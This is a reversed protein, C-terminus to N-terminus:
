KPAPKSHRPARGSEAPKCVGYSRWCTVDKVFKAVFHAKAAHWGRVAALAELAKRAAVEASADERWAAHVYYQLLRLEAAVPVLAEARMAEIAEKAQRISAAHAGVWHDMQRGAALVRAIIARQEDSRAGGQECAVCACEFGFGVLTRERREARPKCLVEPSLYSATIEDGEKIKRYAVVLLAKKVSCWYWGANPACSHNIRSAVKFIGFPPNDADESACPIGNTDLLSEIAPRADGSGVCLQLLELWNGPPAARLQARVDGPTAGRRTTLLPVESLIIDAPYLTATAYMGLGTASQKIAYPPTPAPAPPAKAIDEGAANHREIAHQTLPWVRREEPTGVDSTADVRQRKPPPPKPLRPPPRPAPKTTLSDDALKVSDHLRFSHPRPPVGPLPRPAVPGREGNKGRMTKYAKFTTAPVRPQNLQAPTPKVDRALADNTM